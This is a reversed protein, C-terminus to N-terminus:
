IKIEMSRKALTVFDKVYETQEMLPAEVSVKYGIPVQPQLDVALKQTIPKTQYNDMLIGYSDDTEKDNKTYEFYGVQFEFTQPNTTGITASGTVTAKSGKKGAGIMGGSLQHKEKSITNLLLNVETEKVSYKKTILRM